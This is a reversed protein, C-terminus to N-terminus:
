CLISWEIMVGEMKGVTAFYTVTEIVQSHAVGIQESICCQIPVLVAAIVTFKM